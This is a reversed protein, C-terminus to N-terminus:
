AITSSTRFSRLTPVRSTKKLRSLSPLGVNSENLTTELDAYHGLIPPKALGRLFQVQDPFFMSSMRDLQIAQSIGAMALYDGYDLLRDLLIRFPSGPHKLEEELGVNKCKVLHIWVVDIATVKSCKQQINRLLGKRKPESFASSGPLINM